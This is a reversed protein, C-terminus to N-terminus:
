LSGGDYIVPGVPSPVGGSIGSFAGGGDYIVNGASGGSGGGLLVGGNARPVQFSDSDIIAPDSKQVANRARTEARVLAAPVVGLLTPAIRVALSVGLAAAYGPAAAYETDLDDFAQVGQRTEIKITQGNPVPYFLISGMGDATFTQPSGITTPQVITAYRDMSLQALSWGDIAVSVIVSGIPIDAWDGIGLTLNGTQAASTIFVRSLFQAQASWEDVLTNLRRLCFAATDANLTEGPALRNIWELADTVIGRANM